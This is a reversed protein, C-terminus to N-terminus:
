RPEIPTNAPVLREPSPLPPEDAAPKPGDAAPEPVGRLLWVGILLLILFSFIGVQYAGPGWGADLLTSVIAGYLLPGSVASLKGAIGYLGFFEGLRDPPSLRLMFVRDSTWVGGLGAGLLAGGILFTPFSLVAGAIVLGVCWTGLVILLTRKPGIREVLQGWGFSAVVAVVTLVLLVVNATAKTLGIAEVAFVSMVVIVTNVPDTYFFRGLLFRGLGPV